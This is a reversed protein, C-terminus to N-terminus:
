PCRPGVVIAMHLIGPFDQLIWANYGLLTHKQPYVPLFKSLLASLITRGCQDKRVNNSQLLKFRFNQQLAAIQLQPNPSPMRHSSAWFDSGHSGLYSSLNSGSVLDMSADRGLRHSCTKAMTKSHLVTAFLPLATGFLSSSFFQRFTLMTYHLKLKPTQDHFTHRPITHIHWVLPMCFFKWILKSQLCGEVPGQWWNLHLQKPPRMQFSSYQHWSLILLQLWLGKKEPEVGPLHHQNQTPNQTAPLGWLKRTGNSLNSAEFSELDPPFNGTLNLAAFGWEWHLHNYSKFFVMVIM